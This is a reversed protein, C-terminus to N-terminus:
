EDITNQTIDILRQNPKWTKTWHVDTQVHHLRVWKGVYYSWKTYPFATSVRVVYGEQTQTNLSKEIEKIIKLDWLGLYLVPVLSIDLLECWEVTDKWSLVQNSENFLAFVELWSKLNEYRISHEARLNEGVVRWGKPLNFCKQAWEAKIVDQWPHNRGDLSRAHILGSPYLSTNEGDRKETIVIEQNEFQSVSPLVKDTSDEVNSWPLHFTRPHKFM